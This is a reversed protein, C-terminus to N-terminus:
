IGDFRCSVVLFIVLKELRVQRDPDQLEGTAIKPSFKPFVTCIKPHKKKKLFQRPGSSLGSVERCPPAFLLSVPLLNRATGTLGMATGTSGM